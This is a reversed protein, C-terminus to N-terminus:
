LRPRVVRSLHFSREFDRAGHLSFTRYLPREVEEYAIFPPLHPRNLLRLDLLYQHKQLTSGKRNAVAALLGEHIGGM